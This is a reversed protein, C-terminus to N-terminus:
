LGGRYKRMIMVFPHGQTTVPIRQAPVLELDGPDLVCPHSSNPFDAAFGPNRGKQGPWVTGTDQAEM